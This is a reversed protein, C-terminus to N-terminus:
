KHPFPTSSKSCVRGICLPWIEGPSIVGTVHSGAPRQRILIVTQVRTERGDTLGRVDKKM